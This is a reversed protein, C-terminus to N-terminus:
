KGLEQELLQAATDRALRVAGPRGGATQQVIGGEHLVALQDGLREADEVGLESVLSVYLARITSKEELIVELGAHGTGALEAYANIFGCGRDNTRMWEELADYIALVRETGGPPARHELYDTLYAQWTACRRRLYAVTLGEKSGFRDYLTKKTTGAEDAIRDVGVTNTGFRYFLDSATALIREGAPTLRQTTTSM